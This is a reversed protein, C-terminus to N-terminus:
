YKVTNPHHFDYYMEEIHCVACNDRSGIVGKNGQYQLPQIADLDPHFANVAPYEAHTPGHCAQCMLGSEDTRLRYLGSPGRVWDNFASVDRSAPREYDVHCSLCDPQDNWPTRPNIDEVASVVRPRLDRMLREAQPKGAQKEAKLLTLAHDELTGHCHTCTLGVESAHVGRACYTFSEPGTPHCAHCPEPGPRDLLYHVHFGHIAAPLNLRKPDGEASLLPDPHCSQCLVPSGQEANALLTTGHRRDHVALVDSATDAAIGMAGDRRWTGGHCNHCGVETSVPAIAQTMALLEGTEANRAEFTFIPYPNLSGDDAYPLVPIGGAMFTRFTPNLTMEGTLGMGTSGVNRPLDKGILSNAYDWFEVQSAPDMSGPPAAYTIVVNETVIKPQFDRRVLQAYLTSGPPLLSWHADCDTICKEGLNCWALLVYEDQDPDFPPITVEATQEPRQVPQPAEREHVARVLFNALADREQPTGAFRPMYEYVRGIGSIMADMGFGGFKATLPRIDNLPGGISHCSSCQGRFLERGAALKNAETIERHQIWKASQLYGARTIADETGKVIANSYMHGYIVYPRRGAERIMEFSGMYFLGIALLVLAMPRKIGAPMRVAMILGGIFLLASIWLFGQFYPVIEPNRGLIMATPGEPLISVYWWGSLLLFGFPLLLWKACHRVLTERLEPNKEWTATVFGYLGALILAIFTRFALAPWFSPNFFGDWFDRSTLWDGPTLMFGIIGNIMFLSMWAFFFYLWGILMHRRHEMKGFTYFYVFIAVIEALFFVWEIAWAFVFTHILQSTAAPAVLSITFWIGVGTLAGFVMTVILFFKAHRRTYDLIGQNNERLGKRETLVLFLGGGIAFHAIFVHIIAIVAILLGGGAWYLEWVPYSM